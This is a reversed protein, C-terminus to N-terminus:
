EVGRDGEPLSRLARWSDGQEASEAMRKGCYPCFAVNTQQIPRAKPGEDDYRQVRLLVFEQKCHPCEVSDFWEQLTLPIRGYLTM